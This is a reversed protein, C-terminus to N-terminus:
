YDRKENQAGKFHGDKASATVEEKAEERREQPKQRENLAEEPAVCGPLPDPSIIKLAEEVNTVIDVQGTWFLHWLIEDDTLKGKDRKIEFLYNKGRFGVVIDPCGKGIIHLHQVSAGCARLGNVIDTQNKDVRRILM